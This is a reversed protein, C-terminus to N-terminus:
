RKNYIWLDSYVERNRSAFDNCEAQSDSGYVTVMFKDGKFPLIACVADSLREKAQAVAREANQESSFVGVVVYYAYYDGASGGTVSTPPVYNESIAAGSASAGDHAATDDVVKDDTAGAAVADGQAVDTAVVAAEQSVEEPKHKAPDLVADGWMIFSFIGLAVAICLACLVYLWTNSKRRIVITKVGKPNIASAFASEISFSKHNLVGVGGITVTNGERTKQLWRNYIDQAQEESCGAISVIESVLSPAQEQSTFNVVNRPSILKNDSIKRAGQREIYLTGVEPLFVGKGSILMNYIIKNVEGVM